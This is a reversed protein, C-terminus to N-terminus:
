SFLRRYKQFIFDNAENYYLVSSNYFGFYQYCPNVLGFATNCICNEKVVRRMFIHNLFTRLSEQVVFDFYIKRQIHGSRLM